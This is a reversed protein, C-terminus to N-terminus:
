KIILLIHIYLIIFIFFIIYKNRLFIYIDFKKNKNNLIYLVYYM